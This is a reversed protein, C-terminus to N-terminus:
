SSTPNGTQCGFAGKQKRSSTETAFANGADDVNYRGVARQRHNEPRGLESPTM